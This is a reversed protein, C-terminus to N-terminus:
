ITTADLIFRSSYGCFYIYKVCSQEICTAQPVKCRIIHMNDFTMSLHYFMPPSTAHLHVWVFFQNCINLRWEKKQCEYAIMWVVM